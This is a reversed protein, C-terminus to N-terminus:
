PRAQSINSCAPEVKRSGTRFIRVGSRRPVGAMHRSYARLALQKMDTKERRSGCWTPYPPVERRVM